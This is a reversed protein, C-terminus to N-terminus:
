RAGGRMAQAVRELVQVGIWTQAAQHHRGWDGSKHQTELLRPTAKRLLTQAFPHRMELLMELVFFFEVKPWTGDKAQAAALSELGAELESPRPSPAWALAQLAGVLVAPTYTGGYELYLPLNRLGAVSSTARPDGPSARLAARLARESILLRAGSDSTVTQGNELVAEIAEDAYGPSFFGSLFHECIRQEHRAPTCGAGYAGEQDRQAYLWDLGAAIAQAGAPLGLDLLRWISEATEELDGEYFGGDRGQKARLDGQLHRALEPAGRSVDRRALFGFYDRRQSLWERGQEAADQVQRVTIQTQAKKSPSRGKAAAVKQKALREERLTTLVDPVRYIIVDISEVRTM